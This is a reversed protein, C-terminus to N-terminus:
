VVFTYITDTYYYIGSYMHMYVLRPYAYKLTYPKPIVIFTKQNRANIFSQRLAHRAIRCTYGLMLWTFRLCHTMCQCPVLYKIFTHETYETLFLSLFFSLSLIFSVSIHITLTCPLTLLACPREGALVIHTRRHKSILTSNSPM